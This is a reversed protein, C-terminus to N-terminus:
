HGRHRQAAPSRFAPSGYRYPDRPVSEGSRTASLALLSGCGPRAGPEHSAPRRRSRSDNDMYYAAGRAATRTDMTKGSTGNPWYRRALTENIISVPPASTDDHDTFLRGKVLPIEMARFYDANAIRFWVISVEGPRPFPRGEIILGIGTNYQTLPLASVLGVAQVRPLSEVRQVLEKFFAVRQSAQAYKAQPLSVSATLVDKANFGPKVENLRLFSRILLGAGILLVLALAVEAVVLSSLLRHRSFGEGSGRGGEKLANPLDETRSSVIAPALGFLLGTVLSVVLTFLLVPADITTDKLLPYRAPVLALVAKVGLYAVLVGFAGGILGLLGSETLLQRILRGQSAGLSTRVAIERQRAVARSLLLNAVNVCAILLVLGVSALLVILSLRVDRVVFERLGWIKPNKGLANPYQQGLRHGITSMEVQARERSVGPKLRAFVVVGGDDGRAERTGTRALPAYVDITRGVLQFEAPLIGVVTYLAGDLNISSGVIRPDSGFRRQWLGYGLVAVKAAGPADEASLFGRGHVFRAGLLPFYGANVRWFAVREPEDGLTMNASGLSAAVMSEFSQSQQRWDVVDSYFVNHFPVGQSPTSGWIQVLRDENPYPLPRLLVTNVVSFIATNAGTGLALAM